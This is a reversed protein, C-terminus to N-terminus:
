FGWGGSGGLGGSFAAGKAQPRAFPLMNCRWVLGM